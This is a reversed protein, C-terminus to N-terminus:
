LEKIYHTEMEEYGRHEYVQKLRDPMSDTMHVMIVRSCEKEKAWSEFRQLLRLGKGRHEKLVLWFMETALMEGNNPDPYAIAGLAGHFDDLVFITGLGGDIFTKWTRKFVDNDVKLFKTAGMFESQIREFGELDDVTAEWIM